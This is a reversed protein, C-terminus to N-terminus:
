SSHAVASKKVRVFAVLIVIKHRMRIMAISLRNVLISTRTKYGVDMKNMECFFDFKLCFSLIFNEVVISGSKRVANAKIEVM